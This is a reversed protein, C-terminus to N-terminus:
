SRPQEADSGLFAHASTQPAQPRNPAPPAPLAFEFGGGGRCQGRGRGGGQAGGAGGGGVRFCSASPFLRVGLGVPPCGGGGMGRGSSARRLFRVRAFGRLYWGADERLRSAGEGGIRRPLVPAIEHCRHSMAQFASTKYKHRQGRECQGRECQGREGRGGGWHICDLVRAREASGRARSRGESM